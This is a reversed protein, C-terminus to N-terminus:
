WRAMPARSPSIFGFYPSFEQGREPHYTAMLDTTVFTDDGFNPVGALTGGPVNHTTAPLNFSAELAFHDTLFYGGTITGHVVTNTQYDAGPAVAGGSFTTGEDVLNTLSMGLKVYADEAQAAPAIASAMLAVFVANRSASM